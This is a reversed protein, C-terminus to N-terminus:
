SKEMDELFDGMKAAVSKYDLFRQEANSLQQIRIGTKVEIQNLLIRSNKMERIASTGYAVYDDAKYGRMVGSFDKLVKILEEVSHNDIKGTKYTQTGLEVRHRLCDIEKMGWKASLEFIKMCIEYSGVDIAAFVKNKKSPM